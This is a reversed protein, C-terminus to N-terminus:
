RSIELLEDVDDDTSDHNNESSSKTVTSTTLLPNNQLSISTSPTRIDGISARPEKSQQLIPAPKKTKKQQTPQKLKDFYNDFDLEDDTLHRSSGLHDDSDHNEKITSLGNDIPKTISIIPAPDKTKKKTKSSRPEDVNVERPQPIQNQGSMSSTSNEDGGYM